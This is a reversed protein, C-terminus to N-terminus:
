ARSKFFSQTTDSLYLRLVKSEQYLYRAISVEPSDSVSVSRIALERVKNQLEKWLGEPGLGM